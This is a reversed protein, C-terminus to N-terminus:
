RTRIMTQTGRHELLEQSQFSRYSVYATFLLQSRLCLFSFGYLLFISPASEVGGINLIKTSKPLWTHNQEM